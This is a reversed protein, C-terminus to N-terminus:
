ETVHQSFLVHHFITDAIASNGDEVPLCVGRSLVMKGCRTTAQPSRRRPRWSKLRKAQGVAACVHCISQIDSMCRGDLTRSVNKTHQLRRSRERVTARTRAIKVVFDRRKQRRRSQTARGATVLVHNQVSFAQLNRGILNLAPGPDIPFYASPEVARAFRRSSRRSRLVSVSLSWSGPSTM